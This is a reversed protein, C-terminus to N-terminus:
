TRLPEGRVHDLTGDRCLLHAVLGTWGTQHSAGLGAGTDGNFYEHFPLLDRWEPDSRFKEISGFAPRRGDGDPLWLSVMRRALDHAVDLLTAQQGSGTPYEVTFAGGYWDDWHHLSEIVLYNLPFWVPGRWNSNGGFMDSRSEAPEYDVVAVGGDIPLRVPEALHRRSLSRLGFPSLFAEEAFVERLIRELHDPAVVSFLMREQGPDGVLSGGTRLREGSLGEAVLFRAFHKGLGRIHDITSQALFACPLLPILGVMSHVRVPMTTGDAQRLAD